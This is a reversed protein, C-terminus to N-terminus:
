RARSGLTLASTRYCVDPRKGKGDREIRPRGGAVVPLLSGVLVLTSYVLLDGHYIINYILNEM